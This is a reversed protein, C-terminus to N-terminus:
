PVVLVIQLTSFASGRPLRGDTADPVRLPGIAAIAELSLAAATRRMPGTGSGGLGTATQLERLRTTAAAFGLDLRVAERFHAQAAPFDQRLEDRVGRGYALLAALNRTPREEIRTREAPTITIGLEDLVWFAVRKEAVLVAELGIPARGELGASQRGDETEVLRATYVLRGDDGPDRSLLGSLVRRTAALRGLQSAEGRELADLLALERLVADLRLREAVRAGRVSGLDALLFDALAFSLPELLSDGRPFGFPFVALSRAPLAGVVLQAETRRAERVLSDARAARADRLSSAPSTNTSACALSGLAALGLALRTLTRGAPRRPCQRSAVACSRRQREEATTSRNATRHVLGPPLQQHRHRALLSSM